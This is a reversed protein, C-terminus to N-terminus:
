KAGERRFIAAPWRHLAEKRATKLSPMRAVTGDNVLLLWPREPDHGDAIRPQKRITALYTGRTSFVELTM